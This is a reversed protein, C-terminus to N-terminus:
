AWGAKERFATNIKEAWEVRKRLFTASAEIGNGIREGEYCYFAGSKEVVGAKEAAVLLSREFDVGTGYNINFHAKKFPPAVQNKKCEVEIKNGVKEGDVKETGVRVVFMILSAYFRPAQGGAMDDPSGFMVGIKKRIQSIFVLAVDERSCKEVIQPLHRSWIRAETAIHHDGIAGELVAQAICANLSDVVLMIPARKRSAERHIKARDVVGEITTVVQELTRPQSIILRKTDVGLKEAYDPDLKYEKDIYVGLGGAAQCEAIAQLALTTKGSGEGGHLISLRGLPIGGRGIAADLTPCRTSIVGRIKLQLADDGLLLAGDDGIDERIGKLVESVIDPAVAPKAAKTPEAKKKAAM